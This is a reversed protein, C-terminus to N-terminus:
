CDIANLLKVIKKIENMIIKGSKQNRSVTSNKTKREPTNIDIDVIMEAHLLIIGLANKADHIKASLHKSDIKHEM